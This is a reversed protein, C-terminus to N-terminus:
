IYDTKTASRSDIKEEKLFSSSIALILPFVSTIM